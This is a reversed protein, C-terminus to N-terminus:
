KSSENNTNNDVIVVDANAIIDALSRHNKNFIIMLIYIIPLLFAIGFLIIVIVLDFAHYAGVIIAIHAIQWPLFKIINRIFSSRLPNSKYNIHLKMLKKGFSQYPYLGEKISFYLVVPLFTTFFSVVHLSAESYKPVEDNVYFYLGMSIVFLMILYIIICFYDIVAAKFRSNLYEKM